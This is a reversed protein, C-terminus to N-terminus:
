GSLDRAESAAAWSRVTEVDIRIIPREELAHGAYQPYRERLASIARAREPGAAPDDPLLLSATGHLVAWALKTWDEDWHDVLM